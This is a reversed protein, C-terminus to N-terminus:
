KQKKLLLSNDPDRTEGVACIRIAPQDNVPCIHECAGCGTCRDPRVVPRQLPGHTEDAPLADVVIAKPSVPCFEECVICPTNMAWPLCRGKDVFATGIKFPPTEKTGTKEAETLRRIAGTPCVQTCLTCTPECYGIRPVLVPTWLGEPGAEGLAPQLANNPCIKMCQGCRICRKLFAREGEAGPPRIRSPNPRGEVTELAGTRLAPVLVAGAASGALLARRKLDPGPREDTRYGALGFSLSPTENCEATCNMCLDCESRRWSEGPRPAAAGQCSRDCKGCSTCTHEDKRLTLIGFRGAAGLLAGLPCLGRCWFRPIFRNVALVAAFVLTLLVGGEVLTGAANLFGSDAVRFAGDAVARLPAFDSQALAQTGQRLGWELLPVVTLAIGRTALCLPDLLGGMASGTLAAILAVVLIIYKIKQYSHPKNARIRAAGKLGPKIEAALHNLTGMPCIWGCFGRGLFLGLILTVAALWMAGPVTGTTLFVMLGAYPDIDLFAEVPYSVASVGSADHSGGVTAVSVGILWLFMLLFFGQSIRRATRLRRWKRAAPDAKEAKKVKRGM